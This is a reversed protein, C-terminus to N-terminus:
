SYELYKRRFKQSIFCVYVNGHYYTTLNLLKIEFLVKQINTQCNTWRYVITIMSSARRRTVIATLVTLILNYVFQVPPRICPMIVPMLLLTFTFKFLLM